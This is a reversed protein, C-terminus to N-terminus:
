TGSHRGVEERVMAAAAAAVLRAQLLEVKRRLRVVESEGESEGEGEGVGGGVRELVMAGGLVAGAGDEGVARISGEQGHQEMGRERESERERERESEGCADSPGVLDRAAALTDGCGGEGERGRRVVVCSSDASADEVEWQGAASGGAMPHSSRSGGGEAGIVEADGMASAAPPPPRPAQKRSESDSVATTTSHRANRSLHSHSNSSSSSSHAQAAESPDDFAALSEQGLAILEQMLSVDVQPECGIALLFACPTVPDALLVGLIGCHLTFVSLFECHVSWAM